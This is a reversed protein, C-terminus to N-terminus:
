TQRHVQIFVAVSIRINLWKQPSVNGIKMFFGSCCIILNQYFNARLFQELPSSTGFLIKGVAATSKDLRQGLFVKWFAMFNKSKGFLYYGQRQCCNVLGVKTGLVNKLFGFSVM